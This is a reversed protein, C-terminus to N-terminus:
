FWIRRMRNQQCYKVKWDHGCSKCLVTKDSRDCVQCSDDYDNPTLASLTGWSSPKKAIPKQNFRFKNNNYNNTYPNFKNANYNADDTNNNQDPVPLKANIEPTKKFPVIDEFAYIDKLSSEPLEYQSLPASATPLVYSSLPPPPSGTPSSPSFVEYEQFPTQKTTPQRTAYRGRGRSIGPLDM